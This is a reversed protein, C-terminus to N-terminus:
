RRVVVWASTRCFFSYLAKFIFDSGIPLHLDIILLLFDSLAIQSLGSVIVQQFLRYNGASTVLIPLLKIVNIM